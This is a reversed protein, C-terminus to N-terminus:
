LMIRSKGLMSKQKRCSMYLSNAPCIYGIYHIYIDVMSPMYTWYAPYIHGTFLIYGSGIFLVIVYSPNM